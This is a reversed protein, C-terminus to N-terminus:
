VQFQKVRNGWFTLRQKIDMIVEQVEPHKVDCERRLDDWYRGWQLEERHSLERARHIIGLVVIQEDRTCPIDV